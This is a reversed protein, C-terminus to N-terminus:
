GDDKREGDSERLIRSMSVRKKCKVCRAFIKQNEPGIDSLWGAPEGNWDYFQVGTFTREVGSSSGCYPCKDM